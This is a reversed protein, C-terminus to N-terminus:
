SAQLMEPYVQTAITAIHYSVSDKDIMVMLKEMLEPSLKQEASGAAEASDWYIVDMWEGDEKQAVSRYMFGEVALLEVDMAQSVAMFDERSVNEALKFFYTKVVNTSM